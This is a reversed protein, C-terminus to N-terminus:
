ESRRKRGFIRRVETQLEEGIPRPRSPVVSRRRGSPLPGPIPRLLYPLAGLDFQLVSSRVRGYGVCRCSPAVLGHWILVICGELRTLVWVTNYASINAMGPSCPLARWMCRSMFLITSASLRRTGSLTPLLVLYCVYVNERKRQSTLARGRQCYFPILDRRFLPDPERARRSFSFGSSKLM